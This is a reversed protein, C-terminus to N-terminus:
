TVYDSLRNLTPLHMPDIHSPGKKQERGKIFYYGGGKCFDKLDVGPWCM